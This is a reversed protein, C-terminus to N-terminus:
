VQPRTEKFARIGLSLQRDVIHGLNGLLELSGAYDQGELLCQLVSRSVAVEAMGQMWLLKCSRMNTVQFSSIFM